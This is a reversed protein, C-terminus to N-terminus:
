EALVISGPVRTDFRTGPNPYENPYGPVRESKRASTVTFERCCQDSSFHTRIRVIADLMRISVRNRVKTKVNSGRASMRDAQLQPM